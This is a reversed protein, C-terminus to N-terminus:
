RRLEPLRLIRTARTLDKIRWESEGIVSRQAERWRYTLRARWSDVRQADTHYEDDESMLVPREPEETPDIGTWEALERLAELGRETIPFEITEEPKEVRLRPEDPTGELWPEGPCVDEWRMRVLDMVSIGSEAIIRFPAWWSADKNEKAWEEILDVLELVERADQETMEPSAPSGYAKVTLILLPDRGVARLAKTLAYWCLRGMEHDLEMNRVSEVLLNRLERAVELIEEDPAKELWEEPEEDELIRRLFEDLRRLVFRYSHRTNENRVDLLDVLNELAM